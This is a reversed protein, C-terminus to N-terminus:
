PKRAPKPSEAKTRDTPVLHLDDTTGLDKKSPSIMETAKTVVKDAPISTSADTRSDTRYFGSGKLVIGISGYVKKLQGGCVSCKTLTSDTFAQAIEFSNGCGRCVYEYTPM